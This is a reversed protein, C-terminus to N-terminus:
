YLPLHPLTAEYKRCATHTRLLFFKFFILSSFDTGGLVCWSVWMLGAVAVVELCRAFFWTGRTQGHEGAKMSRPNASIPRMCSEYDTFVVFTVCLSFLYHCGTRVGTYRDTRERSRAENSTSLYILCSTSEYKCCAPHTQLFFFSFFFLIGGCGFCVVFDCCGPSRSWRSVVHSLVRGM